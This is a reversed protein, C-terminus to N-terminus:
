FPHADDYEYDGVVAETVEITDEEESEGEFCAVAQRTEVDFEEDPLILYNDILSMYEAVTYQQVNKYLLNIGTSAEQLEGTNWLEIGQRYQRKGSSWVWAGNPDYAIGVAVIPPESSLHLVTGGLEEIWQQANPSVYGVALWHLAFTKGQEQESIAQDM